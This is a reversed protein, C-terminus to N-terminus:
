ADTKDDKAHDFLDPEAPGQPPKAFTTGSFTRKILELLQAGILEIVSFGAFGLGISVILTFLLGPHSDIVWVTAILALLVTVLATKALSLPPDGRPSLPRALMVGVFALAATVVPVSFGLLSFVMPAPAPPEPMAVAAAMAPPWLLAFLYPGPYTM